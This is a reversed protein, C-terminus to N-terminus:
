RKGGTILTFAPRRSTGHSYTGANIHNVAHGEACQAAAYPIQAGCDTATCWKVNPGGRRSVEDGAADESLLADGFDRRATAFSRALMDRERATAALRRQYEAGNHLRVYVASSSTKSKWHQLTVVVDRDANEPDTAVFHIQDTLAYRTAM